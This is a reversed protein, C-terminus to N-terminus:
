SSPTSRAPSSRNRVASVPPSSPRRIAWEGSGKPRSRQTAVVAAGRTATSVTGRGRSAISPHSSSRAAAGMSGQDPGPQCRPTSGSVSPPDATVRTTECTSASPTPM